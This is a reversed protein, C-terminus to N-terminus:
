FGQDPVSENGAPTCLAWWVNADISGALAVVVISAAGLYVAAAPQRNATTAVCRMEGPSRLSPSARSRKPTLHTLPSPM